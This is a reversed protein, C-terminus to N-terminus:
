IVHVRTPTPNTKYKRHTNKKQKRKKAKCTSWLTPRLFNEVQSEERPDKRAINCVCFTRESALVRDAHAKTKKKM